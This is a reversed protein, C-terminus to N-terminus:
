SVARGSKNGSNAQFRRLPSMLTGSISSSYITEFRSRGVLPAAIACALWKFRHRFTRDLVAARALHYLGRARNNQMVEEAGVIGEVEALLNANIRRAEVGKLRTALKKRMLLTSSVLKLRIRSSSSPHSRVLARAGAMDSFHFCAGAEACRLWFDWDEVPPLEDDFPGVREFISRRTLASNIPITNKQVLSLLVEVGCGSVGPQWPTNEGWMSYLLESPNDTHFFRTDSYVIDVDPNREMFEVQQELKRPEILDDADLFQLYKGTSNRVGNNRAAAQRSNVQHLYRVRADKQAYARIVESTNDTSGDDIVICEWNEYTQAALSDLAQGIFHGYNYAAVVVSVM